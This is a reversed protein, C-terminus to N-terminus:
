TSDSSPSRRARRARSRRRAKRRTSTSRTRCPRPASLTAPTLTSSRQFSARRAHKPPPHAPSSVREYVCLKNLSHDPAFSVRRAMSKRRKSKKTALISDTTTNDNDQAESHNTNNNEDGCLSSRLTKAQRAEAAPRPSNLVSDSLVEFPKKRKTVSLPSKLFDMSARKTGRPSKPLMGNEKDESPELMDVRGAEFVNLADVPQAGM